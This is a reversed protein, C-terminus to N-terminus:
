MNYIFVYINPSGLHSLLLSNEQWHLLSQNLGQTLFIGQFVHCGMGTNKSSFNWLFLPVQHTVTWPTVFLM